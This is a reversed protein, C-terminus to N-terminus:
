YQFRKEYEKHDFWELIINVIRIEDSEITYVLRWASPLDYKWLNTINYKQVYERPWLKKPIKIGCFNYQKLDDLARNIFKYLQRDEFKGEKLCQFQEKLKQTIFAVHIQKNMTCNLGRQNIEKNKGSQFDM